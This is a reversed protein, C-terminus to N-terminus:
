IVYLVNIHLYKGTFYTFYYTYWIYILNQSNRNFKMMYKFESHSIKKERKKWGEWWAQVRVQIYGQVHTNTTTTTASSHAVFLGSQLFKPSSVRQLLVAFRTCFFKHKHCYMSYCWVTWLQLATIPRVTSFFLNGACRYVQFTAKSLKDQLWSPKM